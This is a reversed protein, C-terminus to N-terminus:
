KDLQELFENRLGNIRLGYSLSWLNNFSLVDSHSLCNLMEFEKENNIITFLQKRDRGKGFIEGILDHYGVLLCIMRIQYESLTEIEEFMIRATMKLSDVPHDPYSKQKYNNDKWIEKPGKGIDHLYASLKLIIKDDDGSTKYYDSNVVNSVVKLTHDSVNENHIENETELEFIGKLEDISNFDNDISELLEQTNKFKYVKDNNEKETIIKNTFLDFMRKLYNPGTTLTERPRGLPFKTFYFHRYNLHGFNLQPLKRNYKAFLETVKIRFEDNWVAIHTIWDIPVNNHVLIEAMKKHKFDDTGVAWKTHNIANWDLNILDHPNTYFNPPIATNASANTFIVHEELIKDFSVAFFILYPQDINKNNTLSLLMPNSSCFYFPVYDHVTGGPLIPVEMNARRDQINGNAVDNHSIGLRIKENTSLFGHQLISELNDIHTFHYFYKGQYETPITM